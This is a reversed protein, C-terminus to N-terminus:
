VMCRLKANVLMRMLRYILLSPLLAASTIGESGRRSVLVHTPTRGTVTLESTIVNIHGTQWNFVNKTVHKLTIHRSAHWRRQVM